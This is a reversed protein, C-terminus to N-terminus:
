AGLFIQCGQKPLCFNERRLFFSNKKQNTENEALNKEEPDSFEEYPFLTSQSNLRSATVEICV